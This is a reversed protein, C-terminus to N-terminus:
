SPSTTVLTRSIGASIMQIANRTAEPPDDKYKWACHERINIFDVFTHSKSILHRDLYKLCLSRRDTCSFCIQDVNCCRCAALVISDLNQKKVISAIQRTGSDTCAQKIQNISSVGAFGSIKRAVDEYNIISSINDGCNCLFVGIQKKSGSRKGSIESKATKNEEEVLDPLHQKKPKRSKLEVATELAIAMAHSLQDALKGDPVTEITRIGGAVQPYVKSNKATAKADTFRLIAQAGIDFSKGTDEHFVAGLKCVDECEMCRSCLACNLCRQAERSATQAPLGVTTEELSHTRKQLKMIPMKARKYPAIDISDFDVEATKQPELSRGCGLDMGKLYRDISEAARLGDAMADVVNNPGIVCDGGAFVGPLSSELTLPDVKILGTDKYSNLGEIELQSANSAQGIAVVVHDADINFETGPIPV